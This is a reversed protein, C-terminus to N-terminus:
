VLKQLESAVQALLDASRDADDIGGTSGLLIGSVGPVSLM